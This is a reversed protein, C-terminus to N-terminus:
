AQRIAYAFENKYPMLGPFSLCNIKCQLEALTRAHKYLNWPRVNLDQVMSIGSVREFILGRRGRIEIIEGAAPTPIGASVVAHAVKSEYEVWSSPCWEHYLKLITNDQWEFIEATRGEAIPRTLTIEM